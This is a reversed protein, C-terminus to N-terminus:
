EDIITRFFKLTKEATKKWSYENIYSQSTNSFKTRKEISFILSELANFISNVDEPDFYEANDGLIDLMPRRKSCAIPIKNALYELLINPLNECTSAFIAIDAEDYYKILKDHDVFDIHHIYSKNKDIKNLINKLKRLAPYYSSGILKLKVPIKKDRLKKVALVVKDQHKYFDISSVYILNLPKRTSFEEFDRIRKKTKKFKENIGHPIIISKRIIKIDDGLVIQRAYENLFITGKSRRFTHMQVLKLLNFKFFEFRPFYRKKEIQDFPLINRCMSIVPSFNGLYSGGPAFLLECKYSNLEYPMIFIRWFTHYLINNEFFSNNVKIFSLDNKIKSLTKKNSWIVFKDNSKKIKSFENLLEILHNVGGGNRINLADIGIIM